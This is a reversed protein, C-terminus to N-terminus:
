HFWAALSGEVAEAEEDIDQTCGGLCVCLMGQSQLLQHIAYVGELASLIIGGWQRQRLFWIHLKFSFLMPSQLCYTFCFCAGDDTLAVLVALFIRWRSLTCFHGPEQKDGASWTVLVFDAMPFGAMAELCAGGSLATGKAVCCFVPPDPLPRVLSFSLIAHFVICSSFKRKM